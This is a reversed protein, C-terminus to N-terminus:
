ALLVSVAGLGNLTGTVTDGKNGIPKNVRSGTIVIQGARLGGQRISGVNALWVLAEITTDLSAGTDAEFRDVGIVLSLKLNALDLGQWDSVLAGTVVGANVQLDAIGLLKAVDVGPAFRTGLIELAPLLGEIAAVVEDRSYGGDRPPLDQNFRVAVEVEAVRATSAAVDLTAGSNMFLSKLLPSHIPEAESGAAIKWGGVEGELAIVEDQIAFAAARDQPVLAEPFAALKEGTKRARSLLMAAQKASASSM